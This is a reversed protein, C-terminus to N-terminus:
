IWFGARKWRRCNASCITFSAAVANKWSAKCAVKPCAWCRPEALLASPVVWVSEVPASLALPTGNRDRLAGRGGPELLTRVHRREGEALLFDRDRVQLEFSRVLLAAFLLGMVVVLAHQRWIEVGVKSSPPPKKM